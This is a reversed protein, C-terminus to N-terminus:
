IELKRIFSWDYVWKGYYDISKVEDELDDHIWKIGNKVELVFCHGDGNCQFAACLYIGDDLEKIKLADIHKINNSMLNKKFVYWSLQSVGNTVKSNLFRLLKKMSKSQIGYECHVENNLVMFEEILDMTVFGNNNLLGMALEFAKFVCNNDVNAGLTKRHTGKWQRFSINKGSKIWDDVAEIEPEFGDQILSDRHIWSSESFGRWWVEYFDGCKSRRTIGSVDWKERSEDSSCNSSNVTLTDASGLVSNRHAGSDGEPIGDSLFNM